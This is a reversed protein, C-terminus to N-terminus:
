DIGVDEMSSRASKTHEDSRCPLHGAMEIVLGELSGGARPSLDVVVGVGSVGVLDLVGTFGGVDSLDVVVSLDVV